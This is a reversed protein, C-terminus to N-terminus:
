LHIGISFVSIPIFKFSFNNNKEPFDTQSIGNVTSNYKSGTYVCDLSTEVSVSLMKTLFYKAGLFCSVGTETSNYIDQDAEAVTQNNIYTDSFHQLGILYDLGYYFESRSIDVHWEYGIKARFYSFSYTYNEINSSAPYSESGSNIDM